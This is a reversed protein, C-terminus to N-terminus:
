HTQPQTSRAPAPEAENRQVFYNSWAWDLIEPTLVPPRREYVAYDRVQGLIDRPTCALLPRGTRAHAQLLYDLAAADFPIRLSECVQRFLERYQPETLAGVYIKYGLRRLFSEDAVEAPSLNTSFVVMVDFPITFKYGTHLSLYDRHRDMPVIWRNMLERPSVRQRGFDDVILLGNNAKLHPPAQYFRAGPDFDLELMGLNLEGGTLAVPRKCLVWRADLLRRNDLSDEPVPATPVTVHVLPDFVQIVENDVVIAHPVAVAGSLLAGLHEALYTKGAGAPGYLFIARGSNMASGIQDLLHPEVVIHEFAQSIRERTVRMGGVSQRQVQETYARLNVPAAGAYQSKRLYDGARSRGSDTLTYVVDVDTGGRRVVECLRESRMFALPADLVTVPLKVHHALETLRLQGRLFLIKALLEVVFLFELGTEDFSRPPHPLETAAAAEAALAAVADRGPAFSALDGGARDRATM